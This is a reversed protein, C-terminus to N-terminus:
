SAGAWGLSASCSCLGWTAVERVAVLLPSYGECDLSDCKSRLKGFGRKPASADNCCKSCHLIQLSTPGNEALALAVGVHGELCAM